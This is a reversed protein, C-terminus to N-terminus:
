LGMTTLRSSSKDARTDAREGAQNPRSWTLVSFKLTMPARKCAM